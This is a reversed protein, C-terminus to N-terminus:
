VKQLLMCLVKQSRCLPVILSLAVDASPESPHEGSRWQYQNRTEEMPVISQQATMTKSTLSIVRGQLYTSISRDISITLVIVIQMDGMSLEVFM